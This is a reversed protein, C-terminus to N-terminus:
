INELYKIVSDLSNVDGKGSRQLHLAQMGLNIPMEVDNIYNDGIMLMESFDIKNYHRLALKRVQDYIEYSPKTCGIECSFVKYDIDNHLNYRNFPLIYPSSVNSIVALKYGKQKLTNITQSVESYKEVSAVEEQIKSIFLDVDFNQDILGKNELKKNLREIPFFEHTLIYEMVARPKRSARVIERYPFSKKSIYLLTNYVDFIIVKLPAM